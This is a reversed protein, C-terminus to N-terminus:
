RRANKNEEPTAKRIRIGQALGREIKEPEAIFDGEQFTIRGVPLGFEAYFKFHIRMEAGKYIISIAENGNGCKIHFVVESENTKSSDFYLSHRFPGATIERIQIESKDLSKGKKDVLSFRVESCCCQARVTQFCFAFILLVSVLNIWKM